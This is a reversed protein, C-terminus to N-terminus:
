KELLHHVFYGGYIIHILCAKQATHQELSNVLVWKTLVLLIITKPQESKTLNIIIGECTVSLIGSTEFLKSITSYWINSPWQKQHEKGYIKLWLM